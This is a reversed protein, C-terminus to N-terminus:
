EQKRGVLVVFGAAATSGERDDPEGAFGRPPQLLACRQEVIAFGAERVFELAQGVELLNVGSYFPSGAKKKELIAEGWPSAAPVMGIVLMGAPVLVRYAERLVAAPDDVFCLAFLLVVSGFRGSVFPLAEGIAQLVLVGRKAALRLAGFAPDVGFGIGLAEAFRGPGVGIELRPELLKQRMGQLCTLEVGFVANNEFWRDYEGALRDFPLDPRSDSAPREGDHM